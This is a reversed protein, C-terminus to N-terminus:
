LFITMKRYNRHLIPGYLEESTVHDMGISELCLTIFLSYQVTTIESGFSDIM